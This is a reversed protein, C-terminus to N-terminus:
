EEHKEEQIQSVNKDPSKESKMTKQKELKKKTPKSHQKILSALNM